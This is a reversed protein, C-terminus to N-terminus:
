VRSVLVWGHTTVHKLAKALIRQEPDVPSEPKATEEGASSTQTSQLRVQAAPPSAQFCQRDAISLSSACVVSRKSSLVAALRASRRM